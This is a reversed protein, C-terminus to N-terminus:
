PAPPSAPPGLLVNFTALVVSVQEPSAHVHLTATRDRTTVDVHDLLGKTALSIWVSNNASVAASMGSAVKPALSPSAADEDVFADASGDDNAVVRSRMALVDKQLLASFVAPPTDEHMRLLEPSAIREPITAASLPVAVAGAVDPPVVAIVHPQVHMAIRAAGDINARVAVMAPVGAIRIRAAGPGAGSMADIAADIAPDDAACRLIALDRATQSLSPGRVLVWEVRLEPASLKQLVPLLGALRALEAAHASARMGAVNLLLTVRQRLIRGLGFDSAVLSAPDAGGVPAGSDVNAAISPPNADLLPM